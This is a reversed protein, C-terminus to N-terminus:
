KKYFARNTSKQAWFWVKRKKIAKKLKQQEAEFDKVRVSYSYGVGPFMMAGYGEEDVFQLDSIPVPSSLDQAPREIAEQIIQKLETKKIRMSAGPRAPANEFLKASEPNSKALIKKVIANQKRSLGRGRQLQSLVSQLFNNPKAEM